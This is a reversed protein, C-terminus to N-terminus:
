TRKDRAVSALKQDWAGGRVESHRLQEHRDWALALLQELRRIQEDPCALTLDPPALGYKEAEAGHKEWLLELQRRSYFREYGESAGRLDNGPFRARFAEFNVPKRSHIPIGLFAAIREMVASQDAVLEEYRFCLYRSGLREAALRWAGQYESWSGFNVRGLIVNELTSPPTDFLHGIRRSMSIDNQMRFFSWVVAGVHRVSQIVYEGDFFRDFPLDHTKVFFINSERALPERFEETFHEIPGPLIARRWPDGPLRYATLYENWTIPEAWDGKPAHVLEVQSNKQMMAFAAAPSKIGAKIQTTLYRFKARIIQQVLSNGSRPYTAIYVIM